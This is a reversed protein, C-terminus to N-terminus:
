GIKSDFWFSLEKDLQNVTVPPKSLTIYSQGPYPSVMVKQSNTWKNQEPTKPLDWIHLQITPVEWDTPQCTQSIVKHGEVLHSRRNLFISQSNQAKFRFPFNSLPQKAAETEGSSGHIWQTGGMHFTSRVPIAFANPYATRVNAPFELYAKTAQGPDKPRFHVHWVQNM